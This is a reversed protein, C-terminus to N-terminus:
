VPEKTVGQGTSGTDKMMFCIWQQEWSARFSRTNVGSFMSWAKSARSATAFASYEDSKEHSTRRILWIIWLPELFVCM